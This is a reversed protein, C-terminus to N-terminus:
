PKSEISEVVEARTAARGEAYWLTETPTGVKCLVGGNPGDPAFWQWGRLNTRERLVGDIVDRERLLAERRKRLADLTLEKETTESDNM